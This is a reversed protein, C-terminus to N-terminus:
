VYVCACVSTCVCVSVCVRECVCVYVCRSMFPKMARNAASQIRATWPEFRLGSVVYSKFSGYGHMSFSPAIDFGAFACLYTFTHQVRRAGEVHEAM